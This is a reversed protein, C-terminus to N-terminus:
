RELNESENQTHSPSYATLVERIFDYSFGRRALRDRLRRQFVEPPLHRLRRAQERAVQWGAADEDYDALAADILEAAIGKGRLEQILARRGRPRFQARNDVWFKAFAQDNVLQVERLREIVADIVTESFDRQLLYRRLEAASRPRYALYNLAKERARVRADALQLAAIQEDTLWDGIQLPLAVDLALGFAFEDDLYVNVRDKTRRQAELSTIRGAM